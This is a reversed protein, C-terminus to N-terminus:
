LHTKIEGIRSSILGFIFQQHFNRGAETGATGLTGPRASTNFPKGANKGVSFTLTLNDTNVRTFSAAGGVGSFHTLKWQPGLGTVGQTITFEINSGFSEGTKAATSDPTIFAGEIDKALGLEGSLGHSDSQTCDIRGDATRERHAYQLYIDRVSFTNYTTWTHSLEDSFKPTALWSFTATPIFTAGPALAGTDDVKLSLTMYVDFDDLILLEPAASEIHSAHTLDLKKYDIVVNAIECKVRNVISSVVPAGNQNTPVDYSQLEACGGVPLAMVFVVFVQLHAFARM